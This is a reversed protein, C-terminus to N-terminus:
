FNATVGFTVRIPSPTQQKDIAITNASGANYGIEPNIGKYKSICFLDQASVYVKLSKLFTRKLLNRNFNYTLSLEKLKVYSADEVFRSSAVYNRDNGELARPMDTVDGQKKWRREVSAAQNMGNDMGEIEYRTGNIVDQGISYYFSLGLSWTKYTFDNRWMGLCAPNADGIQVIDLENILGDHNIDEYIMDGGEFEAGTVTQYRLRRPLGNEDYVLNNNRDRVYTDEDRAYVGKARYGFIGGLNTNEFVITEFGGYGVSESFGEERYSEPLTLMMNRNQAINFYTSWRFTNELEVPVAKIGFEWGENRLTGFNHWRTSFGTSSSIPENMLLDKTMRRYYNFEGSLRDNFLSYDLGVNWETTREEHLNDYAFAGIHTYADGMYGEAGSSYTVKLLNSVNPLKGSTGWSVRPKLETIWEKDVLWPEEKMRWNLAVTPYLSFPNDKGYVSSGETKISFNLNYRNKWRYHADVVLSVTASQTENGERASSSPYIIGHAGSEQLLPSGNRSYSIKLTNSQSYILDAVGTFQLWHNENNVPNWIIRNNNVLKMEYGDSRMGLNYLSQHGVTGLADSPMFFEDGSQRYDVSVQSYLSLSNIPRFDVNLAAMFRNNRVMFTTLDIMAIPNYMVGWGYLKHSNENAGSYYKGSNEVFYDDGNETYVALFPARAHAIALPRVTGMNTNAVTVLSPWETSRKDTLSNVYNFKTSIRLKDSMRYDLNLTTSFREYGGGITTGLEKVYGLSWYYNLRQGGGRLSFSYNQNFGVRTIMDVLDYDNNYMWADDRTLDGRLEPYEDDSDLGGNRNARSEILFMRFQDGNLMPIKKPVFSPTLKMTFNFTPKGMAGRKTTIVIVGNAGRSGYLATSAADKLVDISEIESPDLDGIPNFGFNTISSVDYDDSIVEVGDIIWLPNSSGSISSVGRLRITAGAGPDGSNFTVQLGPVAGQLLQDVSSVAQTELIKMDVTSVANGIDRRDKQMMGFNARETGKGIVTVGELETVDPMLIIEYEKGAVYDETVPKMGIFSFQVKTALGKISNMTFKGDIDTTVGTIMRDNENVLIVNAGILPVGKKSDWVVGSIKEAEQSFGPLAPLFLLLFFLYRVLKLYM